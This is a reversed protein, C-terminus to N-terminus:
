LKCLSETHNRKTISQGRTQRLQRRQMEGHLHAAWEENLRDTYNRFAITVPPAQSLARYNEGDCTHDFAQHRLQEAALRVVREGRVTSVTRQVESSAIAGRYSQLRACM